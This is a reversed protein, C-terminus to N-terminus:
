LLSFSSHKLRVAPVPWYRPAETEVKIMWRCRRERVGRGAVLSELTLQVKGKGGDLVCLVRLKRRDSNARGTGSGEM